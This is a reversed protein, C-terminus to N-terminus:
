LMSLITYLIVWSALHIKGFNVSDLTYIEYAMWELYYPAAIFFERKFQEFLGQFSERNFWFFSEKFEKSFYIYILLVVSGLIISTGM